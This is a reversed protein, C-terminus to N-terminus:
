CNCTSHTLVLMYMEVGQFDLIEIKNRRLRLKLLRNLGKVGDLSEIQNDDAILERLHILGSFGELNHLHNGSVDIYQLNRLHGWPTLSSICNNRINLSRVTMPVGELQGLRNNSVDLDDVRSCFDNLMHLSTLDKNQLSLKRLYEWYPEYPEVDTIKQVLEQITLSYRSDSDHKSLIGHCNLSRSSQRNAAGERQDVTFDSLPSLYFTLDSPKDNLSAVTMQEPARRFAQPTSLVVNVSSNHIPRTYDTLLLEDHEDIRSIPRGVFNNASSSRRRRYGSRSRSGQSPKRYGNYREEPVEREPSEDLCLSSEDEWENGNEMDAQAQPEFTSHILPSSFAVTVVRPHRYNRMSQKPTAPSRGDLISFEHEIEEEDDNIEEPQSDKSIQTPENPSTSSPNTKADHSEMSRNKDSESSVTNAHRMETSIPEDFTQQEKNNLRDSDSQSRETNAIKAAGSSPPRSSSNAIQILKLEEAEDVSLDPIEKLPDEETMDSGPIGDNHSEASKKRIWVKRTRDFTMGAVNDSLLHSVKDPPIIAKNGSGGSSGTPFSQATSPGSSPPSRRSLKHDSGHTSLSDNALDAPVGHSSERSISGLIRINPPDSELIQSGTEDQLPESRRLVPFHVNITDDNEEFKRLHSVVRPDPLIPGRLNRLTGGGERSPPRSFAERTSGENISEETEELPQLGTNQESTRGSRPLAQARINQMILKAQKTFDATTVSTKRTGYTIDQAIDLAFHALEGALAQVPEDAFSQDTDDLQDAVPKLLDEGHSYGNTSGNVVSEHSRSQTLARPRLRTRSAIVDPDALQNSHEYRADKWKQPLISHTFSHQAGGGFCAPSLSSDVSGTITRRRKPNSARSLSALCRKGDANYSIFGPDSKELVSEPESLSYPANYDQPHGEIQIHQHTSTRPVSSTGDGLISQNRFSQRGRGSSTIAQDKHDRGQSSRPSRRSNRRGGNVKAAVFSQNCGDPSGLFFDFEDLHGDGFSPLRRDPMGAQAQKSAIKRKPFPFERAEPAQPSTANSNPSTLVNREFQSMRRVLRDNTFSDYNDFLKLPSGSSRQLEPTNGDKNSKKPTTPVPPLQNSDAEENRRASGDVAQSEFPGQRERFPAASSPVSLESAQFSSPSLPRKQFSDNMSYGGRRLNVFGGRSAFAETDISLGEPLSQTTLEPYDQDEPQFQSPADNVSHLASDSSRSQPRDMIKRAPQGLDIRPKARSKAVSDWNIRGNTIQVISISENRSDSEGRETYNPSQYSEQQEEPSVRGLDTRSTTTLGFIQGDKQVATHKRVSISRPSELSAIDQRGKGLKTSPYPPPSSPYDDVAVAEFRKSKRQNPKSPTDAATASSFVKELGIPSFLDQQRGSTIGGPLVRRKWEPTAKTGV